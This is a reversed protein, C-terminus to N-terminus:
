KTTRTGKIIIMIAILFYLINELKKEFGFWGAAYETFDNSFLDAYDGDEGAFMTLDMVNGDTENLYSIFHNPVFDVDEELYFPIDGAM